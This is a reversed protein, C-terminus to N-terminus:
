VEVREKWVERRQERNLAQMEVQMVRLAKNAM